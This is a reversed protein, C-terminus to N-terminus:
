DNHLDGTLLLSEFFSKRFDPMQNELHRLLARNKLQSLLPKYHNLSINDKNSKWKRIQATAIAGFRGFFDRIKNELKAM